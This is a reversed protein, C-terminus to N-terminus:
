RYILSKYIKTFLNNNKSDVLYKVNINSNLKELLPGTKDILLLDIDFKDSIKNLIDVLVTEAGGLQLSGISFLIKKM